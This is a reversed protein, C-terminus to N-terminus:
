LMMGILWLISKWPIHHWSFCISKGTYHRWDTMADLKEHTLVVDEAENLLIGAEKAIAVATEEADGTVM